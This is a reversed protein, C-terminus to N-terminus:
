PMDFLTRAQHKDCLRKAKCSLSHETIIDGSEPCGTILPSFPDHEAYRSAPTGTTRNAYCYLCDHPCSSYGGIDVSRCCLCDARQGPDKRYLTKDRSIIGPDLCRGPVVGYKSFGETDACSYVSMGHAAAMRVIGSVIEEEEVPAPRRIGHRRTIERIKSYEDLPSIYCRRTAGELWSAILEFNRLHEETGFGPRIVIPSYRWVVRGSPCKESLERFTDLLRPLAPVHPETDPGYGNVTFHFCYDYGELEGLRKILPAPNKTWFHIFDVHERKLSVSSVRRRDFPNRVYVEGARLRNIFWRSYFAPIDTRRSASIVM